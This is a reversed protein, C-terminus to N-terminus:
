FLLFYKLIFIGLTITIISFLTSVAVIDSALKSNGGMADAMIFSVIATPSAFLVFIIVIEVSNFNLFLGIPVAILPFLILKLGAATFALQSANKLRKINLSAGISVLALPLAIKALYSITTTFINGINIHFVSFPVAAIAALILPNTIIQKLLRSLNYNRENKFPVTLAVVALVNYLPMVFALVLSAKGLKDEGILSAIVALGIIAFNSRFSGQIFVGKDQPTKTVITSIFWSIMAFIFVLILSTLILKGDFAKGITVTDIKLFILAPLSITFVFKSSQSVFIENVLGTKRLFIGLLILIFIPSIIQLTFLLVPM